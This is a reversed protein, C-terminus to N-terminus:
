SEDISPGSYNNGKKLEAKRKERVKQRDKKDKRRKTEKYNAETRNEMSDLDITAKAGDKVFRSTGTRQKEEYHYRRHCNSCLVDCKNIEELIRKKSYGNSVLHSVNTTKTGEVRHHYELLWPCELGSLGCRGCETKRRLEEFWTRINRRRLAVETKRKKANNAYYVKQYRRNYARRKDADKFPM